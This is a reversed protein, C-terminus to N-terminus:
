WPLVLTPMCWAVYRHQNESEPTLDARACVCVCVCVCVRCLTATCVTLLVRSGCECARACVSM